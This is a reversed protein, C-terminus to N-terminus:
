RSQQGSALGLGAETGARDMQRPHRPGQLWRKPKRVVRDDEPTWKAIQEFHWIGMANLKEVLKDAVGWILSLDDAKGGRPQKLLEPQRPTGPATVVKGRRMDAKIKDLEGASLPKGRAARRSTKSSVPTPWQQLLRPILSRSPPKVPRRRRYAKRSPPRTRRLHLRRPRRRKPPM